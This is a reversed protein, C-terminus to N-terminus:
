DVKFNNEVIMEGIGLLGGECARGVEFTTGIAMEGIGICLRPRTKPESTALEYERAQFYNVVETNKYISSSPIFAEVGPSLDDTISLNNLICFELVSRNDGVTQTTFDFTSQNQKILKKM